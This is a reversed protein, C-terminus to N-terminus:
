EESLAEMPQEEVHVEWIDTGKAGHKRGLLYIVVCALADILVAFVTGEVGFEVNYFFSDTASNLKFVSFPVLLGSNPLGFVINQTFNWATHVAFACWLSDWYYVILSCMVGFIFIDLIALITVGPNFVHLLAFLLANGFIAIAPSNYRKLLKQYMYGRCVLEESSSQVFVCLLIMLLGGPRFSDYTLVIDGHLYAALICAGNMVFGLVLGLLLLPVNNGKCYPTFTRYLPRDRKRLFWLLCVGWVGITTIYQIVTVLLPSFLGATVGNVLDDPSIRGSSVSSVMYIAMPIGFLFGGWFQGVEELALTLLVTIPASEQWPKKQKVTPQEPEAPLTDSVPKEEIAKNEEPEESFFKEEEM